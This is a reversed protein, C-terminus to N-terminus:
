VVMQISEQRKYVDKVNLLGRAAAGKVFEADLEESGTRFTVNMCSRSGPEAHAKYIHILSLRIIASEGLKKEQEWGPM